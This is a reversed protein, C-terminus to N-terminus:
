NQSVLCAIFIVQESAMMSIPDIKKINGTILMITNIMTRILNLNLGTLLDKKYNHNQLNTLFKNRHYVKGAITKMLSVILIAQKSDMM